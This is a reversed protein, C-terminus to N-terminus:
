SAFRLSAFSGLLVNLESFQLKHWALCLRVKASTRSACQLRQVQRSLRRQWKRLVLVLLLWCLCVRLPWHMVRQLQLMATTCTTLSLPQASVSADQGDRMKKENAQQETRATSEFTRKRVNNNSASIAAVVELSPASAAAAISTRSVRKFPEKASPPASAPQVAASNMAPATKEKPTDSSADNSARPKRAVQSAIAEAPQKAAATAAAAKKNSASKSVAVSAPPKTASAATSAAAPKRQGASEQVPTAPEIHGKSEECTKNSKRPQGSNSSWVWFCQTTERLHKLQQIFAALETNSYEKQKGDPAQDHVCQNWILRVAAVENAILERWVKQMIARSNKQDWKGSALNMALDGFPTLWRPQQPHSLKYLLSEKAVLQPPATLPLKGGDPPPDLKAVSAASVSSRASGTNSKSTASRKHSASRSSPSELKGTAASSRGSAPAVAKYSDRPPSPQRPPASSSSTAKQVHSHEQACVLKARLLQCKGVAESSFGAAAEAVVSQLWDHATHEEDLPVHQDRDAQLATIAANKFWEAAHKFIGGQDLSFLLSEPHDKQPDPPLMKIHATLVTDVPKSVLKGKDTRKGERRQSIKHEREALKVPWKASSDLVDVVDMVSVSRLNEDSNTCDAIGGFCANDDVDDRQPELAWVLAYGLPVSDGDSILQEDSSQQAELQQRASVAIRQSMRVFTQLVVGQRVIADVADSSRDRFLVVTGTKLLATKKGYWPQGSRAMAATVHTFASDIHGSYYCTLWLPNRQSLVLPYWAAPIGTFLPHSVGCHLLSPMAILPCNHGPSGSETSEPLSSEYHLITAHQSHQQEALHYAHQPTDADAQSLPKFGGSALSTVLGSPMSNVPICHSATDNIGCAVARLSSNIIVCDLQEAALPCVTEQLCSRRDKAVQDATEPLRGSVKVVEKYVSAVSVFVSVCCSLLM